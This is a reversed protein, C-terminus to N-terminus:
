DGLWENLCFSTFWTVLGGWLAGWISTIQIGYSFVSALWFTFANIVLAFGGVTVVTLPFSIILLIPAIFANCIAVLFAFILADRYNAVELGSLFHALALIIVAMGALRIFFKGLKSLNM